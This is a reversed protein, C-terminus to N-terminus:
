PIKASLAMGVALKRLDFACCPCFNIQIQATEPKARRTWKRRPKPENLPDLAPKLKRRRTGTQNWTKMGQHVRQTHMRLAQNAM